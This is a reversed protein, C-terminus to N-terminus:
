MSMYQLYVLPSQSVSHSRHAVVFHFPKKKMSVTAVSGRKENALIQRCHGLSLIRKAPEWDEEGSQYSFLWCCLSEDTLVLSFHFTADPWNLDNRQVSENASSGDKSWLVVLTDGGGESLSTLSTSTTQRVFTDTKQPFMLQWSKIRTVPSIYVSKMEPPRLTSMAIICTINKAAVTAVPGPLGFQLRRCVRLLHNRFVAFPFTEVYHHKKKASVNIRAIPSTKMWIKRQNVWRNPGSMVLLNRICGSIGRVCVCVCM